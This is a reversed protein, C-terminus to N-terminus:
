SDQFHGGEGLKNGKGLQRGVSCPNEQGFIDGVGHWVAAATIVKSFGIFVLSLLSTCISTGAHGKTRNKTSCRMTKKCLSFRNTLRGTVSGNGGIQGRDLM